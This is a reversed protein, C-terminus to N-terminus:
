TAPEGEVPTDGLSRITERLAEAAAAIQTRDTGRIVLSTGFRGGRFFPYSGIDLEPHRDQLEGLPKAITGEGLYTSVTQSLVPPGGRLRGRANDFMARMISPVGALVFVNGIRYGPAGSVPNDVLEAGEPMTAMRLRAENLQGPEYQAELIKVADPHRVWPLGFAKAISASTIDDHTPGIGGTTFVYDYRSRLENVAAVIEGEVDSVVRAERLRIGLETLEKALWNLNVDQTRGSLIENGIILVAATVNNRAPM